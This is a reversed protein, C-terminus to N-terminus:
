TKIDYKKIKHQLTQRKIKLAESARTINNNNRDLAKLIIKKELDNLYDDMGSNEIKEYEDFQYDRSYQISFLSSDANFSRIHVFDPAYRM